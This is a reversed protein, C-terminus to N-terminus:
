GACIEVQGTYTTVTAVSKMTELFSLCANDFIRTLNFATNVGDVQVISNVWPCPMWALPHGIVFDFGGSATISASCQMQELALVGTDGAALPAFWQGIPMDLRNAVASSVGTISPLTQGTAGGQDTYLCVTWNHAGAGLAATGNEPVIFNGEASNAAGATTSTYRTPVGTVAETATSSMTKAVSFLRDYLLLQAVSASPNNWWGTFHTTDGGV